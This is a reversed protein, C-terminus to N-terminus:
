HRRNWWVAVGLLVVAAPLLFVVRFFLGWVDDESMRIPRASVRRGPLEILAERETLWGVIGSAVAYNVAEETALYREDLFDADGIVVVRGGARHAAAEGEGNAGDGSAEGLREVRTAVGISVPGPVDADDRQPEGTAVLRAIDTEAFASASTQMLTTARDSDIPRVSRAVEVIMPVPVQLQHYPRTIPHDGWSAVAFPGAPNTSSPPLFRPDLELVVTRDLRIGFDRLMEELGTSVIEDRRIEPDVALLLNGGGRVYDRLVDAEERSFATTPGVVFVADCTEPVRAAGRTEFAEIELNERRMEDALGRLDREAGRNLGWEGHGQTVCVKTRRESTVELLGGTIAQESRVDIEGGGEAFSDFDVRVLDDRTVKWTREGAAMVLAVDSGISGDASQATGLSFRQAIMQYEAPERDPDVFELEIRQNEARYRELLERLDRHNPEASSMVMYIRVDRDLDRVIARTRDSLTYIRESTWDFRQYHRFALYNAMVVIAAVLLSAVTVNARGQLRRERAADRLASAETASM